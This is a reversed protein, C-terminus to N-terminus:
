PHSHVSPEYEAESQLEKNLQRNKLRTRNDGRDDRWHSRGHMHALLRYYQNAEMHQELRAIKSEMDGSVDPVRSIFAPRVRTEFMWPTKFYYHAPRYYQGRRFCNCYPADVGHYYFWKKLSQPMEEPWGDEEGTFRDPRVCIPTLPPADMPIRRRRNQWHSTMFDRDRCWQDHGIHKLILRFDGADKRCAVDARLTWDRIWGHQFPKCEVWRGSWRERILRNLELQTALADKERRQYKNLNM